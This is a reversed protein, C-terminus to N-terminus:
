NNHRSKILLFVEKIGIFILFIGFAKKLFDDQIYQAAFTGILAGIIGFAAFPLALKWVILKKRAYVIISFLAVPIFFLLNIGQAKKQLIDTFLSLYIILVGGGGMGMSSFFGAAAGALASFFTSM